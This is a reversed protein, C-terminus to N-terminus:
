PRDARVTIMDLVEYFGADSTVTVVDGPVLDCAGTAEGCWIMDLWGDDPIAAGVEKIAGSSDAVVFDVHVGAWLVALQM